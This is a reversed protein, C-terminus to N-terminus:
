APQTELLWAEIEQLEFARLAMKTHSYYLDKARGRNWGLDAALADVRAAKSLSPWKAECANRVSESLETKASAEATRKKQRDTEIEPLNPTLIAAFVAAMEPTEVFWEGSFHTSAFRAHLHAEVERCGPMHGVFEVPVPVMGIISQVRKRLGESFGIKVLNDSRLVYISM